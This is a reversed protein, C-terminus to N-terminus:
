AEWNPFRQHLGLIGLRRSRFNSACCVPLSRASTSPRGSVANCERSSVADYVASAAEAFAGEIASRLSSTSTMSPSNM